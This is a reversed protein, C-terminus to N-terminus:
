PLSPDHCSLHIQGVSLANRILESALSKLDSTSMYMLYFPLSEQM